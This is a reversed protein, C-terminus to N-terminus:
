KSEAGPEAATEGSQANDRRQLAQTIPNNRTRGHKAEMREAITQGDEVLYERAERFAAWHRKKIGPQPAEDELVSIPQGVLEPVPKLNAFVTIGSLQEAHLINNKEDVVLVGYAKTSYINGTVGVAVRDGMRKLENYRAFYRKYQFYSLALQGIWLFFAIILLTVMNEFVFM